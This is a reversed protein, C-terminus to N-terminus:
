AAVGETQGVADGGETPDPTASCRSRLWRDLESARILYRGRGRGHGEKALDGARIARLVTEEVCRAEAAAEAVTYRKEIARPPEHEDAM